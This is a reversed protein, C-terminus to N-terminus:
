ENEGFILQLLPRITAVRAQDWDNQFVATPKVAGNRALQLMKQREAAAFASFTRRLAPLLQQFDHHNLQGLWADILQWLDPNHLLLLGSGHLFGELWRSATDNDASQSLAYALYDAAQQVELEQSDLLLRVAIGRLNPAVLEWEVLQALARQWQYLYDPNNLLLLARNVSLVQEFLALSAQEELNNAIMPLGICIRPLMNKLLLEITATATNRVDGYRQVRVLPPLAQMLHQIDKTVAAKHELSQVLVELAQPLNAQIVQELLVTLEQLHETTTAKNQVLTNAAQEVTNGWMGAEIIRLAFEPRWKLQWYENKTSLERGLSPGLTGWPINILFLRHLFQSQKLDHAQRLDLGGQPKNATAKLWITEATRYKKLKLVKINNELDQQLPIIPITDPVQGMLDGVILQQRVLELQSSYGNSFITQVAETLEDIGPMQLGRLTALTEALRVGEIAHAASSELDERQFLQSVKTMWRVTAQEYNEFLLAYWAPSLVGAGYGSNTAIREYTWPIWTAKTKIKAIGKLLANDEKVKYANLDTLAPTHWAGCVVAIREYKNKIAKRMIKRMYAERILNDAQGITGIEARLSQMLEVIVGFVEEDGIGQEFYVEWWRESDSYGALRALYGLPDRAIELTMADAKEATQMAKLREPDQELGLRLSQPLDMAWVPVQQEQAWRFAQWEPSFNTFPYYVAQQLEQPNYILAAVPPELGEDCVHVLLPELEEPAEVLIIDPQFRELAKLLSKSSGPGHHRIGYLQIKM